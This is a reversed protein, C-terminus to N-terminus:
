GRNNQDVCNNVLFGGATRKKLLNLFQQYLSVLKQLLTIKESLYELVFKRGWDDNLYDGYCNTSNYFRHPNIKHPQIDIKTNEMSVIGFEKSKNELFAILINKLTTQQQLTPIDVPEGNPYKTFNGALCISIVDLNRGRQAATEEGIARFQTWDGNKDIFLNYGGYKELVSIFDWKEKHIYDIKEASYHQTSHYPAHELGGTHHIALEKITIM